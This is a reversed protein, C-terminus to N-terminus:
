TRLVAVVVLALPAIQALPLLRGADGILVSAVAAGALVSGLIGVNLGDRGSWRRAKLNELIGTLTGTLYTTSIGGLRRIATSQLGMAAAAVAALVLRPAADPRGNTLEWGCAFAILLALEGALAVVTGRPVTASEVTASEVTASEVTASEMTASEVTASEVTASEVTTSEVTAPEDPAPASRPAGALVGLCYGGLACGAALVASGDGSGASLGLVVLNGTIVSAFAHGLREFATADTAGATLALAAFLAAHGPRSAPM